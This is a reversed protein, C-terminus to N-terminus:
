FSTMATRAGKPYLLLATSPKVMSIEKLEALVLDMSVCDSKNKVPQKELTTKSTFCFQASPVSIKWTGGTEVCSCGRGNDVHGASIPSKKFSVIERQHKEM